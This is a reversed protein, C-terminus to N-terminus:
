QEVTETIALQCDTLLTSGATGSLPIDTFKPALYSGYLKRGYSDRFLVTKGTFAKIKAVQDPTLARLVIPDLVRSTAVGQILRVNYNAYQRFDGSQTTTDARFSGGGIAGASGASVFQSLDSALNIIVRDINLRATLPPVAPVIGNIIPVPANATARAAVANVNINDTTAVSPALADATATAVVASVTGSGSVVPAIADASATAAPPSLTVNGDTSVSPAIASATATAAVATVTADGTVSPALADATATAPVATVTTGSGTSVSPAPADATATAAVATVTADGFVTPAIAAATATAVVATVDASGSVTPAPADATATAAPATVSATGSVTPAPSLATATAPVAAVAIDSTTTVSPAPATASATAAVAAVTATGSVSPAVAAATATAAVATVTVNTSGPALVITFAADRSPSGDVTATLGGCSGAGVNGGDTAIMTIYGTGSDNANARTTEGAPATWTTSTSSKSAWISVVRGGGAPVTSTPSTYSTTGSAQIASNHAAVPTTTNTGTYALLMVSAHTTATHTVNVTSGADGSQAVRTWVKVEMSSTQSDLSTWGGPVTITDTANIGVVLILADGVAVASPITVSWSTGNGVATSDNVFGISM